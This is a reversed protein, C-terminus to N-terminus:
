EKKVRTEIYKKRAVYLSVAIKKLEEQVANFDVGNAILRGANPKLTEMVYFDFFKEVNKYNICHTKGQFQVIMISDPDNLLVVTDEMIKKFQCERTCKWCDINCGLDLYKM